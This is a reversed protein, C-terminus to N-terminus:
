TASAQLLAASHGHRYNDKNAYDIARTERIVSVRVAPIACKKSGSPWKGLWFRLGIRQDEPQMIVRM